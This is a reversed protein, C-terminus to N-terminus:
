VRKYPLLDERGGDIVAGVNACVLQGASTEVENQTRVGVTVRDTRAAVVEVRIEIGVGAEVELAALETVKRVVM